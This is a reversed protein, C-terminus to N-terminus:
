GLGTVRREYEGATIAGSELEAGLQELQARHQESKAAIAAKYQAFAQKAEGEATKLEQRLAALDAPRGSDFYRVAIRGLAWTSGFATAAGFASGWLPVLKAINSVAIRM